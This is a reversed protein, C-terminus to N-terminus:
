GTDTRCNVARRMAHTHFRGRSPRIRRTPNHTNTPAAPNSGARADGVHEQPVRTQRNRWAGGPKAGLARVGIARALVPLEAM